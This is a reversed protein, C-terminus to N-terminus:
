LQPADREQLSQVVRKVDETRDKPVVLVADDTVVVVVDEMGVVGVAMKEAGSANYVISGRCDLVVPDGQLVNGSGDVSRSRGLSAWTGVDDWPFTARVVAVNKAREMLAYDISINEVGEFIRLVEKEDGASMAASMERTATALSPCADDLESLFTSIRWFFMGSNWFFNGGALYEEALELDPKEHFSGVKHVTPGHGVAVSGGDVEIYGYGTAARTPVIGITVLQAEREAADLAVGITERFGKVDGIDHDATLVGMTISESDAGYHAMVYAAAYSLCGSTNRRLPEAILNEAPVGLGAGAIASRLRASTQVYVDETPILPAVRAVAEDLMTHEPSTLCLLQKPQDQRSLPWFREGAGGAMIIAVREVRKPHGTGRGKSIGSM